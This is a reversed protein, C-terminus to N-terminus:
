HSVDVPASALLTQPVFAKRLSTVANRADSMVNQMEEEMPQDLRAGVQSFPFKDALDVLHVMKQTAQRVAEEQLAVRQHHQFKLIGVSVVALFCIAVLVPKLM